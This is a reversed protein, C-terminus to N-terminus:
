ARSMIAASVSNLDTLAGPDRTRSGLRQYVDISSLLYSVLWKYKMGLMVPSLELPFPISESAFWAGTSSQCEYMQIYLSLTLYNYAYFLLHIGSARSGISSGFGLLFLRLCKPSPLQMGLRIWGTTIICTLQLHYLM